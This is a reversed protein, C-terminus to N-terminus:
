SNSASRAAIVGGAIVLAVVGAAGLKTRKSKVEKKLLRTGIQYVVWGLVTYGRTGMM